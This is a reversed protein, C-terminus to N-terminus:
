ASANYALLAKRADRVYASGWFSAKVRMIIDQDFDATNLPPAIDIRGPRVQRWGFAQRFDGVVMVTNAQAKTFTRPAGPYGSTLVHRADKSIYTNYDEDLIKGETITTTNAASQSRVETANLTRRLLYKNARMALIDKVEIDIPLGTYPDVMDAFMQELTDLSNWDVFTFDNKFNIWPAASQYTNYATGNFKYNNVHGLMVRLKRFKEEKGVITAVSELSEQFQGTKDAYYHELQGNVIRGFKQPAPKTIYTPGFTTHPYSEGPQVNEGPNPMKPYTLGPEIEEQLNGNTINDVYLANELGDQALRYKEYMTTIAIQGQIAAFNSVDTSGYAERLVLASQESGGDNDLTDNDSSLFTGARRTASSLRNAYQSGLFSEAQERLSIVDWKITGDKMKEDVMRLTNELGHEKVARVLTSGLGM